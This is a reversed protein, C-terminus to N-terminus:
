VNWCTISVNWTTINWYCGSFRLYFFIIKIIVFFMTRPTANFQVYIDDIYFYFYIIYIFLEPNIELMSYKVKISIAIFEKYKKSCSDRVYGLYFSWPYLVLTLLKVTVKFFLDSDHSLSASKFFQPENLWFCSQCLRDNVRERGASVSTTICRTPQTPLPQTLVVSPNCL